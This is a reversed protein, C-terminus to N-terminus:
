LICLHPGVEDALKLLDKKQTVDAALALNSKKQAMQEFLAKIKPHTAKSARERYSLHAM